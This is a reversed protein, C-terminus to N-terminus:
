QTGGRAPLDALAVPIYEDLRGSPAREGLLLDVAASGGAQGGLWLELIANARHQWASVTVASGSALLVVTREAVEAVERLLEQHSDPIEMHERDYGESDDAAPLGLVRVGSKGR